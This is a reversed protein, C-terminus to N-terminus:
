EGGPTTTAYLIGGMDNRPVDTVFCDALFAGPNGREAPLIYNGLKNPSQAQHILCSCFDPAQLSV